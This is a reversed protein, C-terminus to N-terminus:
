FMSKKLSLYRRKSRERSKFVHTMCHILSHGKWIVSKCCECKGHIKNWLQQRRQPTFHSYQKHFEPSINNRRNNGQEIWTAWRCNEPEYNSDNNVRDITWKSFPTPRPPMDEAFNNFDKWRDCVTIGRGGYYKYANSTSRLCRNIMGQWVGRLEKFRPHNSMIYKCNHHPRTGSRTKINQARQAFEKGCDCRVLWMTHRNPHRPLIHLVTTTGIRIGSLDILKRSM